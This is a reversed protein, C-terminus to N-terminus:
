KITEVTKGCGLMTSGFYPNKITNEKSLWDAGKGDNAMPCHQFYIPSEQKSVKILQYMKKSLIAFHARQNEINKTDSIQTTEDILNVHVKMWVAHEDTKLTEMKVANIASTLEKAKVSATNEDTKVLADKIAFYNEFVAKLQNIEQVEIKPTEIKIEPNNPDLTVSVTKTVVKAARDYQCCGPLKSYADEPALFQDSDHGSLAIRKLIADPNTKKADYTLTAIKTAANWDVKATKKLSGTNEIREKCMECNGYITVTATKANQIQAQCSTFSLLLTIAVMIKSISKKM